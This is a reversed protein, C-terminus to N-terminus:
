GQRREIREEGGGSGKIRVSGVRSNNNYFGKTCLCMRCRVRVRVVHKFRYVALSIIAPSLDVVHSQQRTAGFLRTKEGTILKARVRTLEYGDRETKLVARCM